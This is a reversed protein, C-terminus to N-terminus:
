FLQRASGGDVTWAAGVVNAALPSALFAIVRAPEDTCAVQGRPLAAATERAIQEVPVGRAVALEENAARWLPTDTPGPLVSNITVGDRAYAEALGRVLAVQAAKTVAYAINVASPQKASVSGVVVIRGAGRAAMAPALERVLRTLVMVNLEWQAYLDEDTIQRTDRYWTRGACSVLVEVEGLRERCQAALQGAAGDATLDLACTATEAGLARCEQAVTELPGADLATLMLRAGEAALRRASAGGIGGNAGTVLCTVGKLGLDVTAGEKLTSHRLPYHVL